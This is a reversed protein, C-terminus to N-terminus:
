EDRASKDIGYTEMWRYIQRRDRNFHRATARISGYARLAVELEERTPPPQPPTSPTRSAGSDAPAPPALWAPL